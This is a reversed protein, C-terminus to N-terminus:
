AHESSKHQLKQELYGNEQFWRLTDKLTESIARPQYELERSAKAHSVRPNARLSCLATWSYLSRDAGMQFLLPAFPLGLIALWMPAILGPAPVGCIEEVQKAIERVSVWHGALIYRSGPPAQAEAQIAGISVDRADVWNFGGHILAPLKRLGMAILVAGFHSPKFDYPGIIGTPNLIVGDLGKEVGRRVELEAEAKSLDYPMAHDEIVLPRDEDMPVDMPKSQLAHISSIHILRRVGQDLCAQVVNRTGQVNITQLYSRDRRRLSIGAALHYVVDCGATAEAMSETQLINGSFIELSLGELARRDRHVLARVSRGQALLARVLNAGLHGSAGTVLVPM